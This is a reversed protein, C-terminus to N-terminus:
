SKLCCHYKEYAVVAHKASRTNDFKAREASLQECKNERTYDFGRRVFGCQQFTQLLKTHLGLTRLRKWVQPRM